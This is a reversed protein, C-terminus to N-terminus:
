ALRKSEAGLLQVPPDAITPMGFDPRRVAVHETEENVVDDSDFQGKVM